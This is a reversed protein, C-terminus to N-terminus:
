LARPTPAGNQRRRSSISATNWLTTTSNKASPSAGNPKAPIFQAAEAESRQYAQRLQEKSDNSM